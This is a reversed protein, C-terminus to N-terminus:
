ERALEPEIFIQKAHPVVKRIRDGIVDIAYAIEQSNYYDPFKCNMAVMIEEPGLHQTSLRVIEEVTNTERIARRIKYEDLQSAKEGMLLSRVELTLFVAMCGLLIGIALTAVADYIPSGTWQSLGVGVLAISIGVLAASDELFVVLLEPEKCRKLFQYTSLNKRKSRVAQLAKYFPFSEFMASILLVLYALHWQEIPVAGYFLKQYGKYLSFSGGLTFLLVAVMFAWFYSERAYGFPHLDTPKKRSQKIGYLLLLQNLTDVISHVTEALLSSSHTIMSIVLKSIAVLLNASLAFFVLNKIERPPPEDM